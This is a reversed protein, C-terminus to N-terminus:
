ARCCSVAAAAAAPLEAGPLCGAGPAAALAIFLPFITLNNIIIIQVNLISSYALNLFGLYNVSLEEFRVGNRLKINLIEPIEQGGGQLAKQRLLKFFFRFHQM